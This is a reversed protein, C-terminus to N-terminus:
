PPLPYERLLAEFEPTGRLADWEPDMRLRRASLFTGAPLAMLSRLYEVAEARRGARLHVQALTLLSAPGEVANNAPSQLALAREAARM